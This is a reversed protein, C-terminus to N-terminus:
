SGSPECGYMGANRKGLSIGGSCARASATEAYTVIVGAVPSTLLSNWLIGYTGEATVYQWATWLYGNSPDTLEMYTSATSGAQALPGTSITATGPHAASGVMFENNQSTTLTTGTVYATVNSASSYFAIKDPGTSPPWECLTAATHCTGTGSALNLTVTTAGSAAGIEYAQADTFAGGTTAMASPVQWNNTNTDTVSSLVENATTGISGYTSILTDGSNAINM